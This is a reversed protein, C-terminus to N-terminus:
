RRRLRRVLEVGLAVSGAIAFALAIGYVPREIFIRGGLYGLFGAYTAWLLAALVTLPGFRTPWPYRVLGATFTTATRGGPIFRAIVVLYTGREDLQGGAWEVRRRAKPRELLRRHVPRGLQRGILYSGNDGVWAGAASVAIVVLIDLRDAAALVGATIVAAESPVVPFVADVAALAFLLGYTWNSATVLDLLGGLM